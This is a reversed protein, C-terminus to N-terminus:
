IQERSLHCVNAEDADSASESVYMIGHYNYIPSFLTDVSSKM